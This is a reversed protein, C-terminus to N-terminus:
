FEAAVGGLAIVDGPRHRRLLELIPLTLVFRAHCQARSVSCQKECVGDRIRNSLGKREWEYFLSVAMQSSANRSSRGRM